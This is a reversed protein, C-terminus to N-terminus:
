YGAPNVLKDPEAKTSEAMRRIVQVAKYGDTLLKNALETEVDLLVERRWQAKREQLWNSSDTSALAERAMTQGAWTAGNNHIKLLAERLRAKDLELEKVKKQLQENDVLLAVTDM